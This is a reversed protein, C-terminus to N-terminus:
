SGRRRRDFSFFTKKLLHEDLLCRVPIQESARLGDGFPTRIGEILKKPVPDPM